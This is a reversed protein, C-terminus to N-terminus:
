YKAIIEKMEGGECHLRGYVDANVNVVPALGCAGVCRTAVLSFKYAETTEGPKIGIETTVEDILRQANKVYCATGMCVGIIYDGKPEISFQHYFTIVGYIESLPTDLEKSIIKQLEMPICGFIKQCENLVPMLSGPRQKYLKICADLKDLREQTIVEKGM